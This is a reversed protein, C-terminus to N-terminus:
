IKETPIYRTGRKICPAINGEMVIEVGADVAPQIEFRDNDYHVKVGLLALLPGKPHHSTFYIAEVPLAHEKIFDRVLVRCPHSVRKYERLEHAPNRSTVIVIRDGAQAHGLLIQIVSDFAGLEDILTDDFDFSILM